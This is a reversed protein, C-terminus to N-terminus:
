KLFKKTNLLIQQKKEQENTNPRIKIFFQKFLLVLWSFKSKDRKKEGFIQSIM